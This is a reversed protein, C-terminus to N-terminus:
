FFLLFSIFANKLTIWVVAVDGTHNKTTELVFKESPSM